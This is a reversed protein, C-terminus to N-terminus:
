RALQSEIAYITRLPSDVDAISYDLFIGGSHVQNTKTQPASGSDHIEGLILNQAKTSINPM